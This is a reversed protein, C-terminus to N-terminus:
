IISVYNVLPQNVTQLYLLYYVIQQRNLARVEANSGHTSWWKEHSRHIHTLLFVISELHVRNVMWRRLSFYATRDLFRYGWYFVSSLSVCQSDVHEQPNNRASVSEDQPHWTAFLVFLSSLSVFFLVPFALSFQTTITETRFCKMM